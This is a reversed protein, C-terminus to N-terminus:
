LGDCMKGWMESYRGKHKMLQDHCGTEIIRGKELVIIRDCQKALSLRHAVFVMTIGKLKLLDRVIDYETEGDVASTSEDFIMLSAGKLLTRALVLRQKQGDSLNTGGEEILTSYGLPLADIMQDIKVKRCISRVHGEDIKFNLGIMLNDYITGNFLNSKPSVYSVADRLEKINWEEIKKGFINIEGAFKRNFGVLLKALTSKGSGNRGVLAIKEGKKLTLTIDKLVDRAESYGFSVNKLEVVQDDTESVRDNIHEVQLNGETKIATIDVLRRHAVIAKQIQGQLNVLNQMSAMLFAGLSNNAMIQGLSLTGKAVMYSGIWLVVASIVFQSTATLQNFRNELDASKFARELLDNIKTRINERFLEMSNTLKITEIGQISEILLANAKSQAAMEAHDARDIRGRFFLSLGVYVPLLLLTVELLIPSQRWMVLGLGIVISSDVIITIIGNSLAQVILHADQFRSVIEGTTRKQFFDIPLHLIHQIYDMMMRQSIKQGLRVFLRQKGYQLLGQTMYLTILLISIKMLQDLNQRPLFQDVLWRFYFSTAVGAVILSFSIIILQWIIQRHFLLLKMYPWFNKRDERIIQYNRTPKITIIVGTWEQVFASMPIRMKGQAPDAIFLEDRDCGYVVVYHSYSNEKVVHAILPYSDESKFFNENVKYGEAQFGLEELASILGYATTGEEDTGSMMRLRGISINSGFYNLIMALCAPGCDKLDNQRIWKIKGKGM